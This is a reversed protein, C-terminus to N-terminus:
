SKISDIISQLEKVSKIGVVKDVVVGNKLFIITPISKIGYSSSLVSNEDVNVKGITFDTNSISLEDIIPGLMKCPGCWAAWFDIVTIENKTLIETINGDTIELAM